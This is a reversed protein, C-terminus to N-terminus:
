FKNVAAVYNTVAHHAVLAEGATFLRRLRVDYLHQEQVPTMDPVVFEDVQGYALKGVAVYANNALSLLRKLDPSAGMLLFKLAAQLHPPITPPVHPVVDDGLEVRHITQAQLGQAFQHNGPRPAAFTYTATVAIQAAVLAATAVVAVAAGQSHGTVYLPKGAHVLPGVHHQLPEWVGALERLFGEHVEGSVALATHPLTCPVLRAEFNKLWDSV